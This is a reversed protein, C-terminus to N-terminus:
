AMVNEDKAVVVSLELDDLARQYEKVEILHLVLALLIEPRQIWRSILVRCLHLITDAWFGGKGTEGFCAAASPVDGKQAL